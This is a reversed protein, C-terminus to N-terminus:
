KLLLKYNIAAIVTWQTFEILLREFCFMKFATLKEAEHGTLRESVTNGLSSQLLGIPCIKTMVSPDRHWDPNPTSPILTVLRPFRGHLGLWLQGRSFFGMLM